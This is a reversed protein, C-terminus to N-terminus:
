GALLVMGSHPPLAVSAGMRNGFLDTYSQGSGLTYTYSTDASSNVLSLGGSYPRMYVGQTARMAGTPTGIQANLGAQWMATGYGQQGTVAMASAHDKGMLYCSVAWEIAANTMAPVQNIIYYPKQQAQVNEILQITQVWREGTLYGDGFQTFGGEDEMGDVTAIVQGVIPDTLAVGDFSLNPVLALPHPLQHIATHMTTLWTLLDANWQSDDIAGSYKRVWTGNLYIGCAGWLNQLNVNDAAIGDYGAASAQKAYTQVQWAVVAPNAMDLPVNADGYEYAPTVGDCKYLVWDPHNAKWWALSQRATNDSYTGYDRHFPIYYTLFIGPHGSRFASLNGPDAGWVFDYRSAVAAPNSINYDFIQALHIGNWTDLTAPSAPVGSGGVPTPTAAPATPSPAPTATPTPHRGKGWIQKNNVPRMQEVFAKANGQPAFQVTAAALTSLLV